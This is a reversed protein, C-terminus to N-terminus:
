RRELLRRRLVDYRPGLVRRAAVRGRRGAADRLLAPASGRALAAVRRTPTAETVTFRGYLLAPGERRPRLWPESTFVRRYGAAAALRAIRRDYFGGPVAFSDPPAGLLEALLERSTRLEDTVEADSLETLRPHTHSHSGVVHGAAALAAVGGAELFGPEGLHGTTVFFHGRWGRAELAAAARSASSGGDDFSLLLRAGPEGALGPRVGTAAIADLQEAFREPDLKYRDAGPGQMGVEDRHSRSVVDHYTLTVLRAAV